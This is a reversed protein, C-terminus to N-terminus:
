TAVVTIGGAVLATLAMALMVRRLQGVTAIIRFTQRVRLPGAPGKAPPAGVPLTLVTLAAVGAAGGLCLVGARAGRAAAGAGGAPAAGGAGGPRATVTFLGGAAGGRATRGLSATLLYRVLTSSRSVGM